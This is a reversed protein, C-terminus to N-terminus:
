EFYVYMFDDDDLVHSAIGAYIKKTLTIIIIYELSTNTSM